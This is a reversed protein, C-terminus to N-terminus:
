GVPCSGLFANLRTAVSSVDPAVNPILVKYPIHCVGERAKLVVDNEAGLMALRPQPGLGLVPNPRIQAADRAVVFQCGGQDPAHCVVNVDQKPERCGNSHAIRNFLDLTTRRSPNLLINEAATPECPLISIASKAHALRCLVSYLFVDSILRFVMPQLGELLLVSLQEIEM